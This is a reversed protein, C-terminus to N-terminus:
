VQCWYGVDSAFLDVYAKCDLEIWIAYMELRRGLWRQVKVVESALNLESQQRKIGPDVQISLTRYQLPSVYLSPELKRSLVLKTNRNTHETLSFDHYQM